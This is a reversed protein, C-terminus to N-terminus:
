MFTILYEPYAQSDHFIIFMSPAAPNDTVSDFLDTGAPDKLPPVNMGKAGQTFEGVLVRCLYVCKHKQPDPKSYTDDASYSAKIAFYTGNGHAALNKGAYSRNFGHENIHKITTYCAGHFLKKENNQHSNRIEMDQKKIEYSKWLNQNQIREIKLVKQKCTKNFHSYVDQYEQSSPDLVCSLCPTNAPMPEWHKPFFMSTEEDRVRLLMEHIETTVEHVDDKLGEINLIPETESKYTLTVNVAMSARIQIIRRKDSESLNLIAKDTITRCVQEKEILTRIWQKADQVKATSGGCIHFCAPNIEQVSVEEEKTTDDTERSLGLAVALSRTLNQFFSKTEQINMGEKKLMRSHFEKLVDQQVLVIRVLNLKLHSKKRVVDVVADLMADAVQTPKLHGLGLAPFSISTFKNEASMEISSKVAEILEKPDVTKNNKQAVHVINKSLLNGPMTMILGEHPEFRLRKCREKVTSGAADLISESDGISHTFDENSFNVIVDTTEKTIDGVAVQVTVRDIQFEHIGSSSSTVKTVTRETNQKSTSTPSGSKTEKTFRKKLTNTFIQITEQDSPHLIFTVGKLHRPQKKSSFQIVQELMLSVVIDKPYGLNGTGIAPFTVSCLGMQEAESLCKKIIESLMKEQKDSGQNWQPAIVHFVRKSRLNCGDTIIVAGEHVSKGNEKILDQLKPGAATFIAKSVAGIDLELDLGVTNVIVETVSDQINGKILKVTLGEMTKATLSGSQEVWQGHQTNTSIAQRKQINPDITRHGGFEKLMEEVMSQITKDDNSVLNIKRLTNNGFKDDCFDKIARTITQTCLQLPFGLNGSSIAPLAVSLCNNTEALDLSGKVARRLQGVAKQPNETDYTPGVAHIIFQCPLRGANTLVCDGPELEGRRYIIQDCEEQLQPGAAKLLAGALGGNLKLNENTSSVVADTTCKCMDAECVMIEVGNSTHHQYRCKAGNAPLSDEGDNEDNILKVVCGTNSKLSTVYMKKNDQFFKKAGINSITMTDFFTSSILNEFLAKCDEVHTRCGSLSITQNQFSVKVKDKVENAWSHKCHEEIFTIVTESKVKLTEVIPGNQRLYEEIDKQVLNVTDAYGCVVVQQGCTKILIQKSPNNKSSELQTVFDQWEPTKLINFDQVDMYQSDFCTNIQEAAETLTIDSLAQLEVRNGDIDLAANMGQSTQLYDTIKDQGEEQLFQFVHDDLSIQRKKVSLTRSTLTKFAGWVEDQLGHLLMSQSDSTHTMKLKPFEKLINDEIVDKLLLQYTSSPLPFVESVSTSERELSSAIQDLIENLPQKLKNVDDKLGVVTVVGTAKDPVLVVDKGLIAKRMEAESEEWETIQVQLELSTYKALVQIFATKVTDKWQRIDKAQIGDLKLLEPLPSLKVTPQQLDVKCFHQALNHHISDAAEQTDCLYKWIVQDITENFAPPLKLTPRDKGYLATGLSEYYPFSKMPDKLTKKLVRQVDKPDQFTMIASQEEKNLIVDEVVGEKEFYLTLYDEDYNQPINEVKIKATNELPKVTLNKQKFMRNNTAKSLIHSTEKESQFTVVTIDGLMELSFDAESNLVNRVLM